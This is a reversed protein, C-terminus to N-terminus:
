QKGITFKYLNNIEAIIGQELPDRNRYQLFAELNERTIEGEPAFDHNIFTDIREFLNQWSNKLGKLTREKSEEPLGAEQLTDYYGLVGNLPNGIFDMFRDRTNEIHEKPQKEQREM